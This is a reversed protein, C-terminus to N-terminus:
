CMRLLLSGVSYGAGFSSLLGLDGSQLGQKYHHFAIMCGASSTNAYEDLVLPAEERTADRSLLKKTAFENMTQNAQHLWFRKIESARVQQQELYDSLHGIVMPLLERFVRRGEQQFLKEDCAGTNPVCRNLFGANNRINNSFHTKCQGSLIEFADATSCMDKRQLVAATCADGFIFHSDRDRFNLHASCIEPNVVLASRVVGSVIMQHATHLAFTASSCAVNMDFAMGRVDLYHQLEVAMAPYAREMNSAAVIVLDIDSVKAGANKLAEQSAVLAMEVMYSPEDLAREPLLPHMVRPDLVGQANLLYRNKIGSASEIFEVSSHKKEEVQGTSIASAHEQNFHDVYQNFAQVLQANSVQHPPTFLGTGSIVCGSM